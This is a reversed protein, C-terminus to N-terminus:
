HHSDKPAAKDDLTENAQWFDFFNNWQYPEKLCYYSLRDAYRCMLQNFYTQRDKRKVKVPDAFHEVHAQYRGTTSDKLCTMFYVPCDMISALAFPGIAIPAPASLFPVFQVSNPNTVSTRDAFIVVAEGDDIKQKLKITDDPGFNNIHIFNIAADPNVRKLFDNFSPAHENYTIVNLPKKNEGSSFIARCIEMNGLHTSLIVCGGGATLSNYSAPNVIDIDTLDIKGLWADFKDVIALGFTHFVKFGHRHLTFSNCPAVNRTHEIHRWYKLIGRRAQGGTLYFYLMVPFFCVQFFRKGCVKYIAVLCRIGFLSGREKITSWHAQQSM